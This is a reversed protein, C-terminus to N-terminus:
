QAGVKDREAVPIQPQRQTGRAGGATYYPSRSDAKAKVKTLVVGLVTGGARDIAEVAGELDDRTSRGAEVVLVVGDTHRCLSAADAVPLVPPSDFVIIDAQARLEETFQAYLPSAVFTAPNPPETGAPLAALSSRSENSTAVAIRDLPIRNVLADTIGPSLPAAFVTHIRPRRMDADALVVKQTTSSFALALNVATTTKGNGATPSTVMISKADNGLAVFQLASRVKQYADAIPSNPMSLSIHDLQDVEGKAARPIMGLPTLGLRRVDEVTNVSQDLQERLLAIATGAVLGVFLGIILNQALSSSVPSRPLAAKQYLWATGGADLEASLQLQIINQVISEIQADVVALDGSIASVERDIDAQISTRTEETTANALRNELTVLESRVRDRELRLDDLRNEFREISSTISSEAAEQKLGVYVNAWTDAALAAAAPTSGQFTFILVDSDPDATISGVPLPQDAGLQLVERVKDRALDSEAVNIENALERDRIGAGVTRGDVADEAASADLLVGASAQYVDPRSRSYMAAGATIM